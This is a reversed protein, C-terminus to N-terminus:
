AMGRATTTRQDHLDGSEDRSDVVPHQSDSQQLSRGVPGVQVPIVKFNPIRSVPDLQDAATLRNAVPWHYPLFVTDRRLRPNAAWAVVIDGRGSIVQALQGEALGCAAATAPHIEAVPEPSVAVQAPIRRTQAGSLYHSLV